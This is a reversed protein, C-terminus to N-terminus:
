KLFESFARKKYEMKQYVKRNERRNVRRRRMEWKRREELVIEL